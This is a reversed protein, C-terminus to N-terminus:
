GNVWRRISHDIPTIAGQHQGLGLIKLASVWGRRGMLLLWRMERRVQKFPMPTARASGSNSDMPHASGSLFFAALGGTRSPNMYMGCPTIM